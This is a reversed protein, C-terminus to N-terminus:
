LSVENDDEDLLVDASDWREFDDVPIGDWGRMLKGGAKDWAEADSEAEVEVWKYGTFCFGARYKM